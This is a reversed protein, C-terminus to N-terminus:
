PKQAEGPVIPTPAGETSAKNKAQDEKVAGSSKDKGPAKAQPKEVNSQAEAGATAAPATEGASMDNWRAPQGLLERVYAINNSASKPLLDRNALLEAEDYKGQLALVLALNQRVQASAGPTGMAKRLLREAEGLEGSLLCSVAYNNLTTLSDPEITLAAEYRQKADTHDGIQDLAVGEASLISADNPAIQAARELIPVAEAARNASTLTKGYQSLVLANQPNAKAAQELVTLARELSGVKRLAEGYRAAAETNSPNGDYLSGWYAAAAIPDENILNNVETEHKKLAASQTAKEADDKKARAGHGFTTACASLIVVMATAALGQGLRRGITATSATRPAMAM